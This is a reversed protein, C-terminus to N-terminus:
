ASKEKGWFKKREVSEKRPNKIYKEIEKVCDACLDFHWDTIKFVLSDTAKTRPHRDCVRM